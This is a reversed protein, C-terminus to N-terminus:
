EGECTFYNHVQEIMHEVTYKEPSFVHSFGSQKAKESTTPGICFCPLELGKSNNGEVLAVYAEIASPSTFTLADLENKNLLQTIKDYFEDLLLTDYVTISHFFAKKEKFVKPLIDRSRNGRVYLIKGIEKYRGFFEGAMTSAKYTSPIFTAEHGFSNLTKNTKEGIIAFRLSKPVVAQIKKLSEFFFKVGNSSTLFVWDYDHLRKLIEQNTKSDNLQFSLLPTEIAVGGRKEICKSLKRAQSRGRTVLINKGALTGM